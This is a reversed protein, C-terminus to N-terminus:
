LKKKRHYMLAGATCAVSFTLSYICEPLIDTVNGNRILIDYFGTLGWNLPSIKSITQMIDPMLFIPIWLGGVAAFVVVLLASLIAAQNHEVTIKGIFNGLCIAALSSCLGMPALLWANDGLMLKPLGIHPFLEIGMAFIVSFQLLCVLLFVVSKSMLYQFYSCPMTLLRRFSGDKRENILSTSLSLTIFFIGFLTWAPVNHQTANPTISHQNKQAYQVDFSVQNADIEFTGLKQPIRKNLESILEQFIFDRETIAAYERMSSMLTNRFSTNLTPDIFIRLTVSDNKTNKGGNLGRLITRKAQQRIFDSANEPIVIGIMYDGRAVALELDKESDAAKELTFSESDAFQREISNGLTDNDMNLMLVSMKNEKAPGIIDNQLVTMLIVLAIPMAFMLCLGAVDRRLLLSDKYLLALFTRM